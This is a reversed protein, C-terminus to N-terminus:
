YQSYKNRILTLLEPTNMIVSTPIIKVVGRSINIHQILKPTLIFIYSINYVIMSVCFINVLIILLAKHTKIYDDLSKKVTNDFTDEVTFVYNFFLYEIDQYISSNFMTQREYNNNRMNEIIDMRYISEIFNIIIQMINDTNNLNNAFNDTLCINYRTMEKEKNMAAECANLMFKNDYFNEIDKFNRISKVFTQINENSGLNKYNLTNDNHCEMIYCKIKVINLSTNLLKGYIYNIILLLQNIVNVANISHIYLAIIFACLLCTFTINHFFYRRSLTLPFYKKIDTNFGNNNLYSIEGKPVLNFHVSHRPMVSSRRKIRTEKNNKKNEEDEKEEHNLGLMERFNKVHSFFKQIKKITEEIKEYKIKTLKELIESMLLNTIRILM